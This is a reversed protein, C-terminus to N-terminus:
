GILFVAAGTALALVCVALLAIGVGWLVPKRMSLGVILLVLGTVAAGGVVLVTLITLFEVPGMMMMSLM